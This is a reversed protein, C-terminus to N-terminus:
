NSYKKVFEWIGYAAELFNGNKAYVHADMIGALQKKQDMEMFIIYEGALCFLVAANLAYKIEGKKSTYM